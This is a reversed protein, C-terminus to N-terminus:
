KLGEELRKAKKPKQQQKGLYLRMSKDPSALYRRGQGGSYSLNHTYVVM